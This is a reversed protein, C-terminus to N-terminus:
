APPQAAAAPQAYAAGPRVCAAASIAALRERIVEHGHKYADEGLAEPTCLEPPRDIVEAGHERGIAAIEPDDTSVYIRDVHESERAAMLPYAVMPRGLVLRTNKGPMGTSGKRGLLLAAVTM